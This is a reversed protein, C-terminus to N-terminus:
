DEMQFINIENARGLADFRISLRQIPLSDCKATLNYYFFKQNRSYLEHEDPKGLLETIENQNLTLLEGEHKLLVKAAPLRNTACTINEKWTAPNFGDINPAKYCSYVILSLLLWSYKM